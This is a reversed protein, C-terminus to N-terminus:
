VEAYALSLTSNYYNISFCINVAGTYTQSTFSQYPYLVIGAGDLATGGLSITVRENSSTNTVWFQRRNPNSPM